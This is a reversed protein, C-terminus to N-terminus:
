RGDAAAGSAPPILWLEGHAWSDNPGVLARIRTPALGLQRVLRRRDEAARRLAARRTLPPNWYDDAKPGRLNVHPRVVITGRWGPLRKLTEAFVKLAPERDPECVEGGEYSYKNFLTVGVRSVPPAPTPPEAGAPVLWLELRREAALGGYAELLREALVGRSNTLWASVQRAYTLADGARPGRVVIAVRADAHEKLAVFVPMDFYTIQAVEGFDCRARTVEDIKYARQARVAVHSAACVFLLLALARRVTPLSSTMVKDRAHFLSLGRHLIDGPDKFNFM